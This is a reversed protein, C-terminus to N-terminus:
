FKPLLNLYRARVPESLVAHGGISEGAKGEILIQVRDVGRLSALSHVIAGITLAEGTSGGSHNDRLERSFDVTLTGKDLKVDLCRTGAPIVPNLGSEKEPGRILEEVTARAVAKTKPVLRTIPVLYMANPESFYLTLAVANEPDPESDSWSIWNVYPGPQLPRSIDVHGALTEQTKGDVLIQVRKIGPETFQALTYVISDLAMGERSSGFVGTKLNTINVTATGDKIGQVLEIKTGEPWPSVTAGSKDPWATLLEIAQYPRDEPHDAEFTLPVMYMLDPTIGWITFTVLEGGTPSGVQTEPSSNGAPEGDSGAPDTPDGTPPAETKPSEEQQPEPAPPVTRACGAVIISFCLLLIFLGILRKTM